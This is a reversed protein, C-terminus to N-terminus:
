FTIGLSNLKRSLNLSADKVNVPINCTSDKKNLFGGKTRRVVVKKFLWKKCILQKELNNLCYFKQPIENSLNDCM